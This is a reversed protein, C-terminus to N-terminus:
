GLVCVSAVRTLPARDSESYADFVSIYCVVGRGLACQGLSNGAACCLSGVMVLISLPPYGRVCVCVCRCNSPSPPVCPSSAPSPSRMERLTRMTSSPSMVSSTWGTSSVVVGETCVVKACVTLSSKSPKM